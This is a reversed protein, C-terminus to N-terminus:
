RRTLISKLATKQEGLMRRLFPRPAQNYNRGLADTGTFGLELRRAYEVNTGISGVVERSNTKVRTAISQFLRATVKKPPEPPISPNSGDANGVNLLRQTAGKGHAVALRM